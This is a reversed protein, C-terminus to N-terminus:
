VKAKEYNLYPVYRLLELFKTTYEENIMSGMKLEYLEKAKSDYYRESLYKKRFLRKFEHWILEERRIDRVWKVDERSIHVKGKINFIAINAKMDETNLYNTWALYGLRHM